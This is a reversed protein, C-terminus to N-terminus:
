VQECTVSDSASDSPFLLTRIRAIGDSPEKHERNRRWHLGARLPCRHKFIARMPWFLAWDGRVIEFLIVTM